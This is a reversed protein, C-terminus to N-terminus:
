FTEAEENAPCRPVPGASEGSESAGANGAGAYPPRGNTRTTNRADGSGTLQGSAALAAFNPVANVGVNSQENRM